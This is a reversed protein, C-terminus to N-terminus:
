QADRCDLHGCPHTGVSVDIWQTGHHERPVLGRRSEVASAAVGLCEDVKDSPAQLLIWRVAHRRCLQRLVLQDFAFGLARLKFFADLYSDRLM